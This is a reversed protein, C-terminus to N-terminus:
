GGERRALERKRVASPLMTVALCMGFAAALQRVPHRWALAVVVAMVAAALAAAGWDTVLTFLEAHPLRALAWPLWYLALGAVAAIVWLALVQDRVQRGLSLAGPRCAFTLALLLPYEYVENFIKPAILAAALGGLAGGLSM